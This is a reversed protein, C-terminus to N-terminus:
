PHPHQTSRYAAVQENHQALTASFRTHGAGDSVFYLDDTQAPHLAARLCALGPNSIPGPPLGPHRYTNYPSDFALDSKHIGDDRWRGAVIAAYVVTPDTELPMGRALRNEFVSAVLPREGEVGVEKEIISALIVTRATRSAPLQLPRTVQRFRAVMTRTLEDADAHPSFRYTDPFLYGELSLAHPDFDAILRTNRHAAAEFAAGSGLGATEISRAIERLNDGERVVLTVTFVDGHVMREYVTGVTAPGAFRYEGAKLTGRKLLREAEFAYRSRIVGARELRRAIEASGTGTPIDVFTEGWPGAPVFFLYAGAGVILLLILLLVLPILKKM